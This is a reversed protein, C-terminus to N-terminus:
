RLDYAALTFTFTARREKLNDVVMVKVIDSLSLGYQSTLINLKELVDNPLTVM